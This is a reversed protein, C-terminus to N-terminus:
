IQPARPNAAALSRLKLPRGAMISGDAINGNVICGPLIRVLSGITAKGYVGSHCDLWVEDGLVPVDDDNFATGIGSLAMVTLNRGARCDVAVGAPFPILLGAGIVSRPSIDAGTTYVNILWFLRALSLRGKRFFYVSLRFLAVCVFAPPIASGGIASQEAWVKYRQWDRTLLYRLRRLSSHRM